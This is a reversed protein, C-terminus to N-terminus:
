VVIALKANSATAFEGDGIWLMHVEKIALTDLGYM